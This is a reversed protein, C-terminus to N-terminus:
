RSAPRPRRVEARVVTVGRDRLASVLAPLEAAAARSLGADPRLAIEVGGGRAARVEVSLSRGFALELSEGARGASAGVAVPLARLLARLEPARVEPAFGAAPDPPPAPVAPGGQPAAAPLGAAGATRVSSSPGDRDDSGARRERLLRAGLDLAERRALAGTRARERDAADGARRARDLAQDFDRRRSRRSEEAPGSERSSVRM